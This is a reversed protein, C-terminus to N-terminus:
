LLVIIVIVCSDRNGDGSDSTRLQLLVSAFDTESSIQNPLSPSLNDVPKSDPSADKKVNIVASGAPSEQLVNPHELTSFSKEKRDEM